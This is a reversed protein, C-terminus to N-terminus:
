PESFFLSNAGGKIFTKQFTIRFSTQDDDHEVSLTGENQTLLAKLITASLSGSDELPSTLGPSGTNLTVTLQNGDTETVNLLGSSFIEIDPKQTSYYNIIETLILCVPIALNINLMIANPSHNTSIAAHSSFLFKSIEGLLADFNINASQDSESFREHVISLCKIRRKHIELVEQLGNQDTHIIELDFFASLLALNNRVRHQIESILVEKEKLSQQIQKQQKKQDTVDELMVILYPRENKTSTSLSKHVLGRFTSGDKRIYTKELSFRNLSQSILKQDFKRGNQLDDAHIFDSFDLKLLEERSYGLMKCMTQNVEMWKEDPYHLAIGLPAHDITAKFKHNSQRLEQILSSILNNSAGILFLILIGSAFVFFWGKYSQVATISEPDEFLYLVWQDSFLIWVFGISVYILAIIWPSGKLLTKIKDM